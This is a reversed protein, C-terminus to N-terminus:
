YKMSPGSNQNSDISRVCNDLVSSSALGIINTRFNMILYKFKVFKSGVLPKNMSEGLMNDTPCYIVQVEDREILDAVYFYKINYHRTINVSRSKGNNQLKM